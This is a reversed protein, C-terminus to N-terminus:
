KAKEVLSTCMDILVTHKIEKLQIGFRTKGKQKVLIGEYGVLPGYVIKVNEGEYFETDVSIEQEMSIVKKITDIVKLPIISPKGACHIHCVIKPVQKINYLESEETNVFIYCPFLVQDIWKKQRNKWVRLTRTLPLFADYNRKILEQCVIKEARPSTYFIFWNTEPKSLLNEQVYAKKKSLKQLM